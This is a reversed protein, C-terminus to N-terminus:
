QALENVLKDIKKARQRVSASMHFFKTNLDGEQLWHMKARQKWYTEEQILLIAHKEQVEKYRESTAPDQSGRLREMEESCENVDQKFKMRKRRGWGQLKDACRLIRNTIDVGRDIGWGGEVVEEVDDEKLWSNEFRFLYTKGHRIMPSNQLLIPSHDSHSALLNLLKAEPFTMLWESNAMARDLREEIVNPSGRSKIWTYPYGELQIDTLDCDS